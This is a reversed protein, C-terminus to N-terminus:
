KANENRKYLSEHCKYCTARWSPNVAGCHECAKQAHSESKRSPQGPWAPADEEEPKLTKQIDVVSACLLQQTHLLTHLLESLMDHYSGLIYFVGFPFLSIVFGGVMLWFNFQEKTSTKGVFNKVQVISPFQNALVISIVMGTLLAIIALTKMLKSM